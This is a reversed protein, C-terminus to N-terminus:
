TKILKKDQFPKIILTSINTFKLANILKNLESINLEKYINIMNDIPENLEIIDSQIDLNVSEIDDYHLIYGSIFTKVKRELEEKTIRIHNLEDKIISIFRDPYDTETIINIIIYDNTYTRRIGMGNLIIGGNTLREHLLSSSGFKSKTILALYTRLRIYPIKLNNLSKLPIKIGINVKNTEVNMEKVFYEEKVTKPESIKKIVPNPNESFEKGNQNEHIIALAEEPNFCGTIVIFMNSPHYFTEYCSLIDEYTIKKIDEVTGSILDKRKDKQFIMENMKYILETNPNNDYMKIEETIIGREKNVMEKTFYPTQVYDLLYNLNEKFYKSAYVEYCTLDYTTFANVSSGLKSFYDFASGDPMNFMLHELYHAVGDPVKTYSKDKEKKFETYMSGFHTNFTIYFNKVNNNPLLYVKLGNKLEEYFITEDVGKIIIKEM